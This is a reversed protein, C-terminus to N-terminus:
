VGFEFIKGSLLKYDGETTIKINSSDGKILKVPVNRMFCIKCADTLTKKDEESLEGYLRKLLNINFSQPTQSRYIKSRDPMASINEGDESVIVTDVEPVVACCAGYKLAADISEEITELRVNPRVADHTVIIHEGSEGFEDEIGDIINFLTSSRDAGGFVLRIRKKDLSFEDLLKETYSVYDPHIGIYICDFRGCQMFRSLTHILIPRDGIPLFQKPIPSNMRSGIGGAAIAAFIM